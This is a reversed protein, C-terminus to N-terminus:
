RGRSGGRPAFADLRRELEDLEAHAKLIRRARYRCLDGYSHDPEARPAFEHGCDAAGCLVWLRQDQVQPPGGLMEVRHQTGWRFATPTAYNGCHPCRIVPIM